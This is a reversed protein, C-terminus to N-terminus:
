GGIPTPTPTPDDGDGGPGFRQLNSLMPLFTTEVLEDFEEAPGIQITTAFSTLIGGTSQDPLQARFVQLAAIGDDSRAAVSLGIGNDWFERGQQTIIEFDDGGALNRLTEAVFDELAYEFPLLAVDYVYFAARQDPAIAQTSTIVGDSFDAPTPDGSESIAWDGPTYFAYNGVQSIFPIWTPDVPITGTLEGMMWAQLLLAGKEGSGGNTSAPNDEDNPRGSRDDEQGGLTKDDYTFESQAGARIRSVGLTAALSATALIVNRRSFLHHSLPLDESPFPM